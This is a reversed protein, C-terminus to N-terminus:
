YQGYLARGTFRPANSDYSSVKDSGSDLACSVIQKLDDYGEINAFATSHQKFLNLFKM